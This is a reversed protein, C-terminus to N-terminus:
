SCKTATTHCSFTLHRLEDKGLEDEIWRANLDKVVGGADTIRLPLPKLPLHETLDEMCSFTIILRFRAITHTNKYIMRHTTNWRLPDVILLSGFQFTFGAGLGGEMADIM